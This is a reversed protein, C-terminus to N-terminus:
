ADGGDPAQRGRALVTASLVAAVVLLAANVGLTLSGAAAPDHREVLLFFLTGIVAVGTAGGLQVVANLVGSGAGNDEQPVRGLVRATLVPSTLGMGGGLVALAVVVWWTPPGDSARLSGALVLVGAAMVLCGIPLLTHQRGAGLRWGVQFTAVIGLPWAATVLATRVISWGLEGQLVLTAVLFCSTVAMYVVLVVALGSGFGSGAFLRPPVLPSAGRAALRRQHAWFAAGTPVAAGLLVFSWWPWGAEHGNVLPVLLACATASSLVIGLPDLRPGATVRNDPIWRAGVVALVCLPVNVWFAARWGLGAVDAATLLGGVLPGCVSGASLVVGFVGFATPWEKRPFVTTVMAAAQPVMAAAGLGQAVRGLVLAEGTTAAGCWASALGFVVAGAVFTRRTGFVDGCRGGAVLLMAFALLYGALTWQTVAASAGLDARVTPVMVTMMTADVSDVFAGTLVVSFALWRRRVAASTPARTPAQVGTM